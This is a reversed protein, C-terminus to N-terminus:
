SRVEVSASAKGQEDLAGVEWGVAALERSDPSWGISGWFVEGPGTMESASLEGQINAVALGYIIESLHKVPRHPVPQWVGMQKLFAVYRRDPSVRITAFSPAEALVKTQKTTVNVVVMQSQERGELTTALGSELVSATPEWGKWAKQWERETTVAVRTRSAIGRHQEGTPLLSFVLQDESVWNLDKPLWIGTGRETLPYLEDSDMSWVWVRVNGGRTSLMALHRGDLSWKPAWFGSGDTVGHSLNQARGSQVSFLWVDARDWHGLSYDSRPSVMKSRKVIFALWRGDPSVAVENDVEEIRLLDDATFPRQPAASASKSITLPLTSLLCWIVARSM